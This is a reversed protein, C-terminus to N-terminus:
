PLRTPTCIRAACEVLSNLPQIRSARRPYDIFRVSQYKAPLSVNMERAHRLLFCRSFLLHIGRQAAGDACDPSRVTVFHHDVDGVGM